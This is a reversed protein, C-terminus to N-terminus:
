LYVTLSRRRIHFVWVELAGEGFYMDLRPEIDEGPSLVEVALMPSGLYYKEDEPQDARLVSVDPVIWGGDIRYGTSDVRFRDRLPSNLLLATIRSSVLSHSKEPRPMHIYEGAVLEHKGPADPSREFDAFSM